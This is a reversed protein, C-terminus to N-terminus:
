APIPVWDKVFGGVLTGPLFTEEGLRMRLMVDGALSMSYWCSGVVWAWGVGTRLWRPGLGGFSSRCMWQVLDESTIALAQWLFFKIMGLTREAVTINLPCPLGLMSSAHMCGSLAFAFWLQTYSSLNTGRKIGLLDVLAHAYSTLLQRFPSLILLGQPATTPHPFCVRRITQHWYVGWFARVTTADGISGFYPPWDQTRHASAGAVFAAPKAVTISVQPESLGLAVAVVSGITYQLCCIYYPTAGFVLAKVFRWRWHRHRLTLYKTNLAGVQGDSATYFLHIGLQVVLDAALMYYVAALTQSFVFSWKSMPKAKPVNRVQYNWRVGRMNFMLVLAWKLKRFGLAPLLLAEQTPKDIHWFSAEPGPEAAFVIKELTSLYVSWGITFPQALAIDNTFHPNVHSVIALVIIALASLSRRGHFAPLALAVLQVAWLVLYPIISGTPPSLDYNPTTDLRKGSDM